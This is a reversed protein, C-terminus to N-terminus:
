HYYIIFLEGEGVVVLLFSLLNLSYKGVHNDESISNPLEPQIQLEVQPIEMAIKDKPSLDEALRDKEWTIEKNLNTKDAGSM